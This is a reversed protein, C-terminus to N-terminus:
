SYFGFNHSLISASIGMANIYQKKSVLSISADIRLNKLISPM